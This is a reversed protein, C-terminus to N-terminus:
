TKSSSGQVGTERTLISSSNLRPDNTRVVSAPRGLLAERSHISDNNFRLLNTRETSALLGDLSVPPPAHELSPIERDGYQVPLWGRSRGKLRRREEPNGSQVTKWDRNVEEVEGPPSTSSHLLRPVSNLSPIVGSPDEASGKAMIAKASSEAILINLAASFEALTMEQLINDNGKFSLM